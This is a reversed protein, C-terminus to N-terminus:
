RKPKKQNELLHPFAVTKYNKLVRASRPDSPNIYPMAALESQLRQYAALAEGTYPPSVLQPANNGTEHYLRGESHGGLPDVAELIWDNDRAMRATGIYSYLWDRAHDTKGELVPAFSRGDIPDDAPLPAHALELVTPLIDAFSVLARTSGTAKVGAGAVVLPVWAGQNTACCKGYGADANDSTFFIVTNNQLGLDKVGQVIKGVVADLYQTCEKFNGGENKGPRGSLPTTPLGGKANNHPLQTSYYLMFPTDRHRKMFDISFETFIDESFDDPKTDVGEGNRIICPHWYRSAVATTYGYGPKDLEWAGEFTKGGPYQGNSQFYCHEDFGVEPKDLDGGIEMVKGALATAYGADRLLRPFTPFEEALQKAPNRTDLRNHWVGNTDAYRGTMLMARTPGCMPTAWCTDFKVGSEALSDINPTNADKNGYCGFHDPSIDDANIIIINPRQPAPTDAFAQGGCLALFIGTWLTAAKTKLSSNM